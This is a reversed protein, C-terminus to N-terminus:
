NPYLVHSLHNCYLIAAILVASGAFFQVAELSAARDRGSALPSVDTHDPADTPEDETPAEDDRFRPSFARDAGPCPRIM